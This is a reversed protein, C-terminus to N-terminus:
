REYSDDWLLDAIKDFAKKTHRDVQKLLAYRADEAFYDLDSFDDLKLTKSVPLVKLAREIIKYHSREVPIMDGTKWSFMEIDRDDWDGVLRVELLVKGDRYDLEIETWLPISIHFDTFKDDATSWTGKNNDLIEYSKDHLIDGLTEKLEKMEKSNKDYLAEALAFAQEINVPDGTNILEKLKDLHTM